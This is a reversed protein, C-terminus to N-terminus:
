TGVCVFYILAIIKSLETKERQFGSEKWVITRFSVNFPHM